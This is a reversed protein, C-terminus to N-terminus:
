ENSRLEDIPNSRLIWIMPFLTIFLGLVLFGFILIGFGYTINKLWTELSGFIIEYIFTLLFTIVISGVELQCFQGFIEYFLQKRTYGLTRKLMYEYRQRKGWYYALFAVNILCFVILIELIVWIIDKYEEIDTYAYDPDEYIIESSFDENNNDNTNTKNLWKLFEKEMDKINSKYYLSLTNTLYKKIYDLSPSIMVCRRDKSEFDLPELFGGVVCEEGTIKIYQRNNKEILYKKLGKGIYVFPEKGEIEDIYDKKEIEEEIEENKKVLIYLSIFDFTDPGVSTECDIYVNGADHPCRNMDLNANVLPVKLYYKSKTKKHYKEIADVERLHGIVFHLFLEVQLFTSM